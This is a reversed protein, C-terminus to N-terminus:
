GGSSKMFDLVNIIYLSCIGLLFLGNFFLGIFGFLRNKEKQFVGAIGLVLGAVILFVMLWTLLPDIVIFNQVIAQDNQLRLVIAADGIVILPTIIALIFSAIGMRSYKKNLSVLKFKTRFRDIM